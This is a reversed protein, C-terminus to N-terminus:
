LTIKTKDPVEIIEVIGDLPNKQIATKSKSRKVGRSPNKLRIIALTRLFDPFMCFM